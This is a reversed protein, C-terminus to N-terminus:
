RVPSFGLEGPQGVFRRAVAEGFVPFYHPTVQIDLNLNEVVTGLVRRSKILEIEASSSSAEGLIGALDAMGPLGGQKEEVQILADARYIPTQILAYGVGLVTFALTVAIIIWRGDWISGVLQMLDIEDDHRNQTNVMESM